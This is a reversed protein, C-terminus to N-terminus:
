VCCICFVCVALGYVYISVICFSLCLVCMVFASLSVALEYFLYQFGRLFSVCVMRLACLFCVGFASGCVYFTCLGPLSCYAFIACLVYVFCVCVCACACM